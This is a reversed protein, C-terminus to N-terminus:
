EEFIALEWANITFSDGNGVTKGSFLEKAKKHNYIINLPSASFNLYYRITKGKENTGKRVILPFSLDGGEREIGAIGAVKNLLQKMVEMSPYGAFYTATGKGYKNHTIAAYKGWSTHDYSAWVEATVPTVFEMWDTMYNEGQATEFRCDKLGIREVNTFLQYRIGCVDTLLGPQMCQRVQVHENSFGSRFAYVINGGNAVYKNLKEIEKDSAV